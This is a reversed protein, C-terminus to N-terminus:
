LGSLLTKIFSAKWALRLIVSILFLSLGVVIVLSFHKKESWGKASPLSVRLVEMIIAAAAASALLQISGFVVPTLSLLLKIYSKPSGLYLVFAVILACVVMAGALIIIRKISIPNM